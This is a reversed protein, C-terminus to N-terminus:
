CGDSHFLEKLKEVLITSPMMPKHHVTPSSLTLPILSALPLNKFKHDLPPFASDKLTKLSDIPIELMLELSWQEQWLLRKLQTKLTVVELLRKLEQKSKGPKKSSTLEQEQLKEPSREKFTKQPSLQEM